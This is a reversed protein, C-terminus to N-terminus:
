RGTFNAQRKDRFAARGEAADASAWAVRRAEEVLEDVASESVSRELALKHGAITLPALEAIDSAWQQAVQLDGLRHVVGAAFLREADYTEAVLLM